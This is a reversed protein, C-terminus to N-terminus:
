QEDNDKEKIVRGRIRVPTKVAIIKENIVDNPSNLMATKRVAVSVMVMGTWIQLESLYSTVGITAATEVKIIRVVSSPMPTQLLNIPM